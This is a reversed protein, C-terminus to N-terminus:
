GMSQLESIGSLGPVLIKTVPIGFESKSLDVSVVQNYGAASLAGLCYELMLNASKFPADQVSNYDLFSPALIEEAWSSSVSEDYFKEYVDRTQDDRLGSIFTLRSQAAETIAKRLAIEKIPHSASGYAPRVNASYLESADIVKCIFSPISIDSTIDWIAVSIKAKFFRELLTCINDNQITGLIVKKRFYNEPYRCLDSLCKREIVECLGHVIAQSM